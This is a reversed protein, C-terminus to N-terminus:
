IGLAHEVGSVFETHEWEEVINGDEDFMGFFLEDHVSQVARVEKM